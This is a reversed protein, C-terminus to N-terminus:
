GLPLLFLTTMFNEGAVLSNRQCALIVIKNKYFFVDLSITLMVQIVLADGLGGAFLLDPRAVFCEFLLQFVLSHHLHITLM